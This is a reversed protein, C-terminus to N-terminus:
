DTTGPTPRRRDSVGGGYRAGRAAGRNRAAPRGRAAVRCQGADRGVGSGFNIQRERHRGDGAAVVGGYRAGRATGRDRVAARCRAAGRSWVADRGVVSGFNIPRERHRGDGATAPRSSAGTARAALLAAIELPPDVAVRLLEAAGFPTECRDGIDFEVCMTVDM